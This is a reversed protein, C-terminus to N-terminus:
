FLHSVSGGTHEAAIAHAFTAAVSVIDIKPSPSASLCTDTTVVGDLDASADIKAVADKSFVGHTVFAACSTVGHAKLVAAAKVLTGCTDAMDDILLAHRGVCSGTPLQKVVQGTAPDREKHMIVLTMNSYIGEARLRDMLALARKGGGADPSVIAMPTDPEAHTRIREIFAPLAYLNDCPVGFFGQIQAAHLDMTIVHDAGIAELTTAVTKATIPQRSGDKRDQRAYPFMPLVVVVRSSARKLADLAVFLQMVLENVTGHEETAKGWGVLYVSEKRVSEHVKVQTETNAFAAVTMPSVEAIGMLGHERVLVAAVTDAFPRAAPLAFLKPMTHTHADIANRCFRIVSHGCRVGARGGGGSSGGDGDHRSLGRKAGYATKLTTLRAPSGTYRAPTPVDRQSVSNQPADTTSM